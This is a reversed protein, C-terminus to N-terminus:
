AWASSVDRGIFFGDEGQGQYLPLLLWGKMPAEIAGQSDRALVQGREIPQFNAFGPEMEFADGRKVVHRHCVEVVGPLGEVARALQRRHDHLGPVAEEDVVGAAVLVVWIVAVLNEVTAPDRHQGGEICVGSYGRKALYALMTGPIMGYVGLAMPLPLASALLRDSPGASAACFPPGKASTTHLDLCTVPRECGDVFSDIAELLERQEREEAMLTERDRRRLAKLAGENWRRNLDHALYRRGRALAQRNGALGLLQGRVSIEAEQLTELVRQIALAGAPENGHLGGFLVVKPGEAGRCAGLIRDFQRGEDAPSETTRRV